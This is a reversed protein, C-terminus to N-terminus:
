VELFLFHQLARFEIQFQRDQVRFQYFHWEWKILPGTPQVRTSHLIRPSRPMPAHPHPYKKDFPVYALIDVNGM